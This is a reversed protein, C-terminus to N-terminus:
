KVEILSVYHAKEVASDVKKGDVFSYFQNLAKKVMKVQTFRNYVLTEKSRVAKGSEDVFRTPRANPSVHILLSTISNDKDKLNALRYFDGAVDRNDAEKRKVEIVYKESTKVDTIVIDARETKKGWGKCLSKYMVEAEVMYKSDFRSSSLSLLEGVIEGERIPYHRYLQQKYGIWYALGQLVESINKDFQKRM